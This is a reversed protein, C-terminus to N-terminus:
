SRSVYFSVHPSDFEALRENTLKHRFRRGRHGPIKSLPATFHQERCLKTAMLTVNLIVVQVLTFCSIIYFFVYSFINNLPDIVATVSSNLTCYNSYMCHVDAYRDGYGYATLRAFFCDRPARSPAEFTVEM